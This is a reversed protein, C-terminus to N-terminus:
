AEPAGVVLQGDTSGITVTVSQQQGAYEFTCQFAEGQTNEIKDPCTVGQLETLGFDSQLVATVQAEVDAKPLTGIGISAILFGIAGGVVLALPTAILLSVFTRSPKRGSSGQTAPAAGPQGYSSPTALPGLVGSSTSGFPGSPGGPAAYGGGAPQGFGGGPQPQGFGGGAPQGFNGSPQGYNGSPQGYGSNQPTGFPSNPTSM